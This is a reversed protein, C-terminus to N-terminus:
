TSTIEQWKLHYFIQNDIQSSSQLNITLQGKDICKELVRCNVYGIFKIFPVCFWPSESAGIPRAPKSQRHPIQIKNKLLRYLINDCTSRRLFIIFLQLIRSIRYTSYHKNALLILTNTAWNLAIRHAEPHINRTFINGM